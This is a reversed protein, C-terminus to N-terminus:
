ETYSNSCSFGINCLSGTNTTCHCCSPSPPGRHLDWNKAQKQSSSNNHQEAYATARLTPKVLELNQLLLPLSQALCVKCACIEKGLDSCGTPSAIFFFLISRWAASRRLLRSSLTPNHQHPFFYAVAGSLPSEM